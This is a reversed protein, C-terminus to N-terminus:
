KNTSCSPLNVSWSSMSARRELEALIHSFVIHSGRLLQPKKSKKQLYNTAFCRNASCCIAKVHENTFYLVWIVSSSRDWNKKDKRYWPGSLWEQFAEFTCKHLMSDSRTKKFANPGQSDIERCMQHSLRTRRQSVSSLCAMLQMHWELLCELISPWCPCRSTHTSMHIKLTHSGFFTLNVM